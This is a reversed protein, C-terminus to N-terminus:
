DKSHRGLRRQCVNQKGAAHGKRNCRADTGGYYRTLADIATRLPTYKKILPNIEKEPAYTNEITKPTDDMRGIYAAIECLSMSDPHKPVYLPKVKKLEVWKEIMRCVDEVPIYNIVRNEYVLVKGKSLKQKICHTIFRSDREYKGFVGYLRLYSVNPSNNAWNLALQKSMGYGDQREDAGSGLLLIRKCHAYDKLNKLMKVNDQFCRADDRGACHIVADYEWEKFYDKVEEANTLDLFKHTPADRFYKAGLHEMLNKSIFGSGGTILISKM